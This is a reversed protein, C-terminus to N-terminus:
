ASTSSEPPYTAPIIDDDDDDDDDDDNESEQYCAEKVHRAIYERRLDKSVGKNKIKRLKAKRKARKLACRAEKEEEEAAEQGTYGRRRNAKFLVNPQPLPLPLEAPLAQRSAVIKNTRSHLKSTLNIFGSAFTEKQGVPLSRLKEVAKAAANIILQASNDQYRVGASHSGLYL